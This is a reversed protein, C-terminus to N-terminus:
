VQGIAIESKETKNKPSLSVKLVIIPNIRAKKPTNIIAELPSKKANFNSLIKPTIRAAPLEIIHAENQIKFRFSLRSEENFNNM